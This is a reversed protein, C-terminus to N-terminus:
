AEAREMNVLWQDDPVLPLLMPPLGSQSILQGIIQRHYPYGIRMALAAIHAQIDEDGFDLADSSFVVRYASEVSLPPDDGDADDASNISVQCRSIAAFPDEVSIESGIKITVDGRTSSLDVERNFNSNLLTISELQVNSLGRHDIPKKKSVM